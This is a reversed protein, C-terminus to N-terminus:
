TDTTVASYVSELGLLWKFAQHREQVISLTERYKNYERQDIRIGGVSIDNDIL